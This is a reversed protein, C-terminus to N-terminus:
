LFLHHRITCYLYVRAPGATARTSFFGEAKSNMGAAEVIDFAVGIRVPFILYAVYDFFRSFSRVVLEFNRVRAELHTKVDPPWGYPNVAFVHM